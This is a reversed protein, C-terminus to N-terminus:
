SNLEIITIKVIIIIDKMNGISEKQSKNNKNWIAIM